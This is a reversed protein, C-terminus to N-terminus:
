GGDARKPDPKVTSLMFDEIADCARDLNADLEGFHRIVANDKPDIGDSAVVFAELDALTNVQPLAALSAWDNQLVATPKADYVADLVASSAHSIVVDSIALSEHMTAYAFDGSYRDMVVANPLTSLDADLAKGRDDQKGRHPRVILLLDPNRRCFEHFM